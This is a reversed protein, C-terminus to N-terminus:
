LYEADFTLKIDLEICLKLVDRQGLEKTMGKIFKYFNRKDVDTKLLTANIGRERIRYEIMRRLKGNDRM